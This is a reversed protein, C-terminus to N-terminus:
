NMTSQKHPKWRKLLERCLVEKPNKGKQQGAAAAKAISTAVTSSDYMNTDLNNISPVLGRELAEQVEDEHVTEHLLIDILTFFEIISQQLQEPDNAKHYHLGQKTFGQQVARKILKKLNEQEYDILWELLKLLEASLVFQYRDFPGEENIM